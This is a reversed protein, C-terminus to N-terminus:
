AARRFPEVNDDGDISPTGPTAEQQRALFRTIPELVDDLGIRAICTCTGGTFRHRLAPKEECPSCALPTQFTLAPANV